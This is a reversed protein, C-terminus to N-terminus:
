FGTFAIFCPMEMVFAENDPVCSAAYFEFLCFYLPQRLIFAIAGLKNCFFIPGSPGM